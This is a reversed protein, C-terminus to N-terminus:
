RTRASGTSRRPALKSCIDLSAHGAKAHEQSAMWWCAARYAPVAMVRERALEAGYAIAAQIAKAGVSPYSATLKTETLGAALTDLIVSVMVRTGKTCAQGPCVLPDVTIYERWDVM